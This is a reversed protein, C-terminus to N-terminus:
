AVAVKAELEQREQRRAALEFLAAAILTPLILVSFATIWFVVGEASWHQVIGYVIMGLAVVLLVVSTLRESYFSLAFMAVVIGLPILSWATATALEPLTYGSLNSYSQITKAGFFSMIWFAGGLALFLRAFVRDINLQGTDQTRLMLNMTDVEPTM